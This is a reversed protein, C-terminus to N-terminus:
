KLARVILIVGGTALVVLGAAAAGASRSGCESETVFPGSTTVSCSSPAGYVLLGTGVGALALGTWLMGKGKPGDSSAAITATAATQRAVIQQVARAGSTSIPGAAFVPTTNLIITAAVLSSVIRQM